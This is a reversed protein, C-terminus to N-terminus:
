RVRSSTEAQTFTGATVSGPLTRGTPGPTFGMFGGFRFGVCSGAPAPGLLGPVFGAGRGPLTGPVPDSFGVV